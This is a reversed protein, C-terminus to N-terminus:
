KSEGDLSKIIAEEQYKSLKEDFEIAVGQEGIRVIKGTIKFHTGSKPLTFTLSILEKMVLTERTEIFLGGKSLDQIFDHYVRSRTSYDVPFNCSIRPQERNEKQQWEVLLELLSNKKEDSLNQVLSMIRDTIKLSNESSIRSTM